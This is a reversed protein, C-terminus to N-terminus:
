NIAHCPNLTYGNDMGRLDYINEIELYGIRLYRTQIKSSASNLEHSYPVKNCMRENKDDKRWRM